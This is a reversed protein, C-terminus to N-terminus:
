RIKVVSKKIKINHDNHFSNYVLAEVITKEGDRTKPGLVIEMKKLSDLKLLIYFDKREIPRDDLQGNEGSSMGRIIFRVEKQFKWYEKKHIAIEDTSFLLDPGKQTICGKYFEIAHADDKLDYKISHPQTDNIQSTIFLNGDRFYTDKLFSTGYDTDHVVFMDEDLGIRVGNLDTYMKWLAINELIDGTWCSAFSYSNIKISNDGYGFLAEDPDDM